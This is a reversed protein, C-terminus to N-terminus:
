EGRVRDVYEQTLRRGEKMIAEMGAAKKARLEPTVEVGPHREKWLAEPDAVYGPMDEALKYFGLPHIEGYKDAKPPMPIIASVFPRGTKEAVNVSPALAGGDIGKPLVSSLRVIADVIKRGEPTALTISGSIKEDVVRSLILSLPSAVLAGGESSEPAPLMKADNMRAEEEEQVRKIVGIWTKADGSDKLLNKHLLKLSDVTMDGCKVAIEAYPPQKGVQLSDLIYAWREVTNWTTYNGEQHHYKYYLDSGVRSRSPRSGDAAREGFIRDFISDLDPNKPGYAPDARKGAYASRFDEYPDASSEPPPVADYQKRKAEDGLIDYAEQVKQYEEASGTEANDPHYKKAMGRYAETIEDPTANKEVGLVDYHTRKAKPKHPPPGSRAARESSEDYCSQDKPKRSRPGELLKSRAVDTHRNNVRAVHDQITGISVHFREAVARYTHKDRIMQIAEVVEDETLKILHKSM